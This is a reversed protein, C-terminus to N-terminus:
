SGAKAGGLEDLYRHLALFFVSNREKDGPRFAIGMTYSQEGCPNCWAVTGEVSIQLDSSRYKLVIQEGPKLRYSTEIGVGTLSVDQVRTIAYVGNESKIFFHTDSSHVSLAGRANYRKEVSM